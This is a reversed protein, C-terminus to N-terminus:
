DVTWINRKKHNFIFELIYTPVRGWRDCPIDWEYVFESLVSKQGNRSVVKDGETPYRVLCVRTIKVENSEVSEDVVNSIFCYKNDYNQDYITPKNILDDNQKM